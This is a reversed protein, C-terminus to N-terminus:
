KAPAYSEKGMVYWIFSTVGTVDGKNDFGISGLVTDFKGSHLASIVDASKLSGAQQCAQAWAQVAAYSYLTYGGPDYGEATFAAVVTAAEPRLRIDPGFTFLAGEGAKGAVILFENTALSDGSVLQLDPLRQKAQRIIIGIDAEYGGVFLVDVKANILKEVLPAYDSQSPTYSEFMVEAVDRKNLQKKTEQALGLGYIQGDNLIAIHSKAYNDALYNGAIAGQQDDRGIVRFIAPGGEDTFKPNTSAPSIMIIGAAQYIKSAPISAHSCVSGIVLVVRESVLQRAAAEAQKSDCGDDVSIVVLKQGLVGGHTNIYDVAKQAGTQQEEGLFQNQGTLAGAIGIKIQAQAPAVCLVTAATTAILTAIRRIGMSYTTTAM